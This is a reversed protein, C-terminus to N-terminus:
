VKKGRLCVGKSETISGIIKPNFESLLEKAKGAESEPLVLVFGTGMNFTRYMEDDPIKGAEQIKKFIKLPEHPDSIDVGYNPNLREINLIGGGTIHALGHIECKELANLIPKVYIRTPTLLEKLIEKDELDLVKRALTLGNSHVGSSSLGLIVDGPKIKKGTIIKDKDVLGIATGAIDFGSKPKAGKILDPLSATEGGVIAIGSEIAGNRMGQALQSSREKNIEEVAYYDVLAIPEAGLCIIDNVNMAIMDIGITTYDDLLEAILVKSGAGDTAMALAKDGLDILNAFHGELDLVEGIKGKRTAFTDALISVVSSISEAEKKIDVGAEKYDM